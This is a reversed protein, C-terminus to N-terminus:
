VPSRLIAAREREARSRGGEPLDAVLRDLYSVNKFGMEAFMKIDEQYRHYFDIGVLRLNDDTPVDTPPTKVGHPLVDQISLGKGDEQYAGELQNAAVSGGWLFGKPFPLGM